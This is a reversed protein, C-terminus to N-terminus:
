LFLTADAELIVASLEFQIIQVDGLTAIIEGRKRLRSEQSADLGGGEEPTDCPTSAAVAPVDRGADQRSAHDVAGDIQPPRGGEDAPLVAPVGQQRRDLPVPPDHGRQFEVGVGVRRVQERGAAAGPLHPHHVNRLRDVYVRGVAVVDVPAVQPPLHRLHRPVRLHGVDESRTRRVAGHNNPVQALLFRPAFHADLRITRDAVNRPIRGLPQM